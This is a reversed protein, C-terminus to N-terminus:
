KWWPEWPQDFTVGPRSGFYNPDGQPFTSMCPPFMNQYPWACRSPKTAAKPALQAERRRAHDTRAAQKKASATTAQTTDTQQDARALSPVSLSFSAAAIAAVAFTRLPTTVPKSM